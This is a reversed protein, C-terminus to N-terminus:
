RYNIRGLLRRQIATNVKHALDNNQYMFACLEGNYEDAASEVGTIHRLHFKM